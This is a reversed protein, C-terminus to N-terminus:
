IEGDPEKMLEDKSVKKDSITAKDLIYDVVREEFLPARIQAIAAPNKQYFNLVQQPTVNEGRMRLFQAEQMAQEQVARQLLEKPVDVNARRGIEALVLGLRVRRVAIARYEDKLQDEPKDKDEEDRESAEVQRWIQGFEADVMSKPLDFAHSEDLRDLLARKMHSRSQQGFEAEFRERLKARLDALDSLGLKQALADDITTELPARVDNVTVNFVAAKGALDTARYDAPFTVDVKVSAGTKVGVLQDEFGPIFRGSGLVLEFNEGAGGDFAVGDIMGKFDIVVLDGSQAEAIEGRSEYATQNKALTALSEEIDEDPVDAVPRVLSISSVDMPEFEPLIEAQVLCELDAKGSLVAEIDGQVRPHPQTAPKLNRDSFAKASAENVIEQLVESMVGKGYLKKLHALPAKGKRFGKLHVDGKMASLRALLKEDLEAAPVKVTFKRELGEASQEIVEM